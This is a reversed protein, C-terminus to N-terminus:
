CGGAAPVRGADLWVTRDAWDGRGPDHTASLVTGGARVVGRVVEDVLDKAADDCSAYPEDLVLLSPHRLVVRALALRQRMGPSFTRVLGPTAALGVRELAPRVGATGFGHVKACFRLNEEATLEDYMRARHGLFETRRRIEARGRLLDHGLVRGHGFTPSLATAVIQLLTSKGAGNHGRVLVSEGQEVRLDVRVLAPTRGFLRSVGRM